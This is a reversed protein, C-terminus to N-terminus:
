FHSLRSHGPLTGNAAVGDAIKLEAKCRHSFDGIGTWESYRGSKSIKGRVPACPRQESVRCFATPTALVAKSPIYLSHVKWKGM